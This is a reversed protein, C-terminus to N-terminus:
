RRAGLAYGLGVALLECATRWVRAIIALVGAAGVSGTVRLAEALTADSVGLGGPAFVALNGSIQSAIFSVGLGAVAGVQEGLVAWVMVCFGAGYLVWFGLYGLLLTTLCSLSLAQPLPDRGLRTLLFGALAHFVRPHAVVAAGVILVALGVVYVEGVGLWWVGIAALASGVVTRLLTELAVSGAVPLGPLGQESAVKARIVMILVKGPLYAGLLSLLYARVGALWGLRYGMGRMMVVWMVGQLAFACVPLIIAVALLGPRIELGQWDVGAADDWARRVVWALLALVALAAIVRKVPFRPRSPTRADESM